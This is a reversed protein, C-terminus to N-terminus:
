RRAASLAAHISSARHMCTVGRLSIPNRSVNKLERVEANAKLDVGYEVGFVKAVSASWLLICRYEAGFCSLRIDLLTRNTWSRGGNSLRPIRRHAGSVDDKM